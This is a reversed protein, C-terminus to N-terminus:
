VLDLWTPNNFLSLHTASFPTWTNIYRPPGWNVKKLASLWCKHHSNVTYVFVQKTTKCVYLHSHTHKLTHPYPSPYKSARRNKMMVIASLFM